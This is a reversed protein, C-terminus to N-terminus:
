MWVPGSLAAKDREDTTHVVLFRRQSELQTGKRPVSAFSSSCLQGGSQSVSM